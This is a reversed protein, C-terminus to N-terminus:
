HFCFMMSFFKINEFEILELNVCNSFTFLAASCCTLTLMDMLVITM